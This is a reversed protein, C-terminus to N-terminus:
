LHPQRAGWCYEFITSQPAAGEYYDFMDYHTSSSSPIRCGFIWAPKSVSELNRAPPWAFLKPCFGLSVSFTRAWPYNSANLSPIYYFLLCHGCNIPGVWAWTAWSYIPIYSVYVVGVDLKNHVFLVLHHQIFLRILSQRNFPSVMRALYISSYLIILMWLAGMSRQTMQQCLSANPMINIDLVNWSLFPSLICYRNCSVRSVCLYSDFPSQFCCCEHVSGLFQLPIQM